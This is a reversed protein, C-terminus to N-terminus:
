EVELTVFLLRGDREVQLVLPETDKIGDLVQRLVAVSSVVINNVAHIVDGPQLTDGSYPSDGARAAVVIGYEKRLGPLLAAVTQDIDIGLIGLRRVTNKEPDVLDAFRHPDDRREVVPVTYAHKDGERLVQVNVKEGVAHRYLNIEMQRANQLPRGNLSLVIDGVQLGAKDAPGGPTVDALLVGWDQGLHLGEALTPTITQAAVGIESRHVHGSDRLQTYVNRIINSPVAFGLGESGGSQSLIFTNIGMVRADADVLPGGSNGPNIPADTQIYIMSDDPKLQRATSSVVGMSVSNQLGLPNGFAMVLQGQKLTDSDGLTLHSLGKRDIKLVALDTDRDEGVIRAELLKGGPQLSAPGAGAAEGNGMEPVRVTVKRANAVVHRNTVIYGDASLIVGSGTARQRTVVAANTGSEGDGGLAYGTSFIQVVARSVRRSLAELTASLEHLSDIKQPERAPVPAPPTQAGAAIAALCLWGFTKAVM